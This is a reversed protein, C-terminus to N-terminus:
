RDYFNVKVPRDIELSFLEFVNERVLAVELLGFSNFRAILDGDDSESYSNNLKTIIHGTSGPMIKFNRDKCLTEFLERSVNTIVNGYTDSYIVRGSISDGTYAPMFDIKRNIRFIKEGVNEINGSNVIMGAIKSLGLFAPRYNEIRYVKQTDYMSEIGDPFVLSMIGNDACIFYQNNKFFVLHEQKSSIECDVAIVHITGDPFFKYSNSLVFATEFQSYPLLGHAIDVVQVGPCDKYLQGKIRGIFFDDKKRDTLLTILQLNIHIKCTVSFFIVFVCIFIVFKCQM